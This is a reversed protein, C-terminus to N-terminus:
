SNVSQPGPATLAAVCRRVAGPGGETLFLSPEVLEVEMVCYGGDDGRVLDVRVYALDGFRRRVVDHAATAVAIQEADATHPVNVEAAFLDDVEGAVPLDVRKSAAHSYEGAFFVMPWEGEVAVSPLRPQVLATLGRSHLREVHETALAQQGDHYAAADRSGAGVSPKVVWGGEPFEPREGPEVFETPTIPVGAAQLEALYHKDLSWRMPDVPNRLDTVADVREIWALFEDFRDPYDWASRLVVRDFSSWDVAPDDWDVVAVDVGAAAFAAVALPEDPDRGHAARATVWALRHIPHEHTVVLVDVPSSRWQRRSCRSSSTM